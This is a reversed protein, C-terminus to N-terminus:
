YIKNYPNEWNNKIFLWKLGCRLADNMPNHVPYTEILCKEYEKLEKLRQDSINNEISSIDCFPYPGKFQRNNLDLTVCQSIFNTEVPYIVDGIMIIEEYRNKARIWNDWFKKYLEGVDGCTYEVNKFYHLVNTKIWEVDSKLSKETDIPCYELHKDVIVGNKNFIIYAVAFPYGYLGVSEVDVSFYYLGEQKVEEKFLIEM